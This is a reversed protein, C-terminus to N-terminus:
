GGLGLRQAIVPWTEEPDLYWPSLFELVDESGPPGWDLGTELFGGIDSIAHMCNIAGGPEGFFAPDRTRRDNARYAVAGSELFGIRAIARDYLDRQIEVPGWYEVLRGNDELAALTEDLTFDRGEEVPCFLVCVDGTEEYDAPIWSITHVDLTANGLDEGPAIEARVFTAFTHSNRAHNVADQAGFMVLFYRISLAALALAHMARGITVTLLVPLL